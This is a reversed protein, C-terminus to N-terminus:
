TKGVVALQFGFGTLLYWEISGELLDGWDFIWVERTRVVFHHIRM